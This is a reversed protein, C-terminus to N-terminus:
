EFRILPHKATLQAIQAQLRDRFQVYAGSDPHLPRHQLSKNIQAIESLLQQADPTLHVECFRQWVYAVAATSPHIMDDAYFRYDRLEDMVIEYAPFYYVGPLRCLQEVALLLVAKGAQAAPPNQGMYRVPSITLVIKLRANQQQLRGILATYCSVIEEIGLRRQTFFYAPLKHCNAVIGGDQEYVWSSGFTLLLCDTHPLAEAATLYSDNIRKLADSRVAASFKGHHMRSHWLGNYEFLEDAGFPRHEMLRQLAAAISAPNYLVGLPNVVGCFRHQLLARGIHESFCSGLLMFRKDYDLIPCAPISIETRFQM